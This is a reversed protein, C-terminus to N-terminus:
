LYNEMCTINCSISHFANMWFNSIMDRTLNTQLIVQICYYSMQIAKEHSVCNFQQWWDSIQLLTYIYPTVEQREV